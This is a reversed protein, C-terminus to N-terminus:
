AARVAVGKGKTNKKKTMRKIISPVCDVCPQQVAVNKRKKKKKM